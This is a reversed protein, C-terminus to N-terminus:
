ESFQYYGVIGVKSLEEVLTLLARGYESESVAAGSAKPHGGGGIKEALEKINFDFNKAVRMSFRVLNGNRKLSPCFKDADKMRNVVIIIKGGKDLFSYQLDGIAVRPFGKILDVILIEVGKDLAADIIMKSYEKGLEVGKRIREWELRLFDDNLFNKGHEILAWAIKMLKDPENSNCKIIRDLIYTERSYGGTDAIDAMEVLERARQNDELELYKILLHAASPATPDILDNKGLRGESLLRQYNSIHHDVNAKANKTKPLDVVLDYEEDTKLAEGVTLFDLKSNPYKMLILAACVIGDVDSAHVAARM